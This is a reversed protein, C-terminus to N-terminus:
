APPIVLQDVHGVTLRAPRDVSRKRWEEILWAREPALDTAAAAWGNALAARMATDDPEIVWDSTAQILRPGVLRALTPGADPGLAAGFGKDTRQHTNVLELVRRDLPDAPEWETRGDYTLVVMLAAGLADVRALLRALWPASVLDILASATVLDTGDPLTSELDSALDAVRVAVTPEAVQAATLLGRDSDVLTWTQAVPLRPRLHRHNNGSGAGLDVVSLPRGTAAARQTAWEALRQEPSRARARADFGARLTLWDQSFSM